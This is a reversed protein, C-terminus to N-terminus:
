YVKPTLPRYILNCIDKQWDIKYKFEPDVIRPMLDMYKPCVGTLKLIFNSAVYVVIIILITKIIRM